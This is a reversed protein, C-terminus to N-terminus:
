IGADVVGMGARAALAAFRPDARLPDLRPDVGLYAIWGSRAEVAAQLRAFAADLDGLAARIVAAEYAFRQQREAAEEFERLVARAARREGVAAYVYGLGARMVANGRSLACSERMAGVAEGGRGCSVCALGRFFPPWHDTEDLYATRDAQEIAPEPERAIWHHWALHVNIIVDLPQLALARRGAALADGFRGEAVLLHARWHHAHAYGPDLALSREFQEDASQWQWDYHATAYALSTHAAACCADLQLARRAAAHAKPFAERPALAGSEWSGLTNYVDALAAHAPAFDPARQVARELAALAKMSERPRRTWHFRGQIFAARAEPDDPLAPAAASPQAPALRQRQETLWDEWAEDDQKLQFGPMLTGMGAAEPARGKLRDVADCQVREPQLVVAHRGQGVIADEGLVGRLFALAQRLNAAAQAPEHRPWFTAMLRERACAGDMSELALMALLALRRPQALLSDLPEGREDLLEVGGLLKLRIV